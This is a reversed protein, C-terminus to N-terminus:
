CVFWRDMREDRQADPDPGDSDHEEIVKDQLDDAEFKDWEAQETALLAPEIKVDDWEVFDMMVGRNGDADAGYNERYCRPGKVTVTHTIEQESEWKFTLSKM